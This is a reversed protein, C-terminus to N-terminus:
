IKKFGTVKKLHKPFNKFRTPVADERLKAVLGTRNIYKEQFHDSCIRSHSSPMWDERRINKLWKVKKEPNTLFKQLHFM